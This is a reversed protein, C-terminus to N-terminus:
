RLRKCCTKQVHIQTLLWHTTKLFVLLLRIRNKHQIDCTYLLYARIYLLTHTQTSACIFHYKYCCIISAFFFFWFFFNKKLYKDGVCKTTDIHTKYQERKQKSFEQADTHTEMENQEYWGICMGNKTLDVNQTQTHTPAALLNWHMNKCIRCTWFLRKKQRKRQRDKRRKNSRRIHVTISM